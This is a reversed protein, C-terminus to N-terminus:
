DPLQEPNRPSSVKSDDRRSDEQGQCKRSPGAVTVEETISGQGLGCALVWAAGELPVWLEVGRCMPQHDHGTTTVGGRVVPFASDM